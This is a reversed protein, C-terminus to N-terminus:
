QSSTERQICYSIMNKKRGLITFFFCIIRTIVGIYSIDLKTAEKIIHELYDFYLFPEGGHIWVAKLPHMNTLEELYQSSEKPKIYGTRNSGAKYSCHQCKAPCKFTLLFDVNKVKM